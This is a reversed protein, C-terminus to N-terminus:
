YLFSLNIGGGLLWGASDFGPWGPNNTQLGERGALPQSNVVADDPVEDAVLSTATADPPAVKTTARPVLRHVQAQLGVRLMGGWLPVRHDVGFSTAVRDSDVYNSRGTQDPVPSPQYAVDVFLRARGHDSRVGLAGGLTDYWAYDTVPRESHRDIYGSWLAYMATAAITLGGESGDYAVVRQAAGGAFTWPLYAHTFSIGAGQEIGNGLLFTFNTGIEFKQPTHVTAALRTRSGPRWLLGFHPSFATSVGVDSDVMIDKFRGVDNLFTPTAAVTRLGLTLVAGLSLRDALRAGLGFSLSTATLRDAYLEPHLSNSFYQEREDSYFASAGTFKSYPVMAYLGVGLRGRFLRQVFGVVQYTHLKHGSGAAQRPRARLPADPPEAPKGSELWVTPLGYRAYRGGGPKEMNVSEVPVDTSESTRGRLHIGINSSLVFVGVDFGPEAEALLGPNFYASAAGGDLIRANFGGVGQLGGTLEFLPSAGANGGTMMVVMAGIIAAASKM